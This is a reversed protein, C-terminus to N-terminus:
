DEIDTESRSRQMTWKARTRKRVFIALGILVFILLGMAAFVKLAATELADETPQRLIYFVAGALFIALAVGSILVFRRATKMGPQRLRTILERILWGNFATM